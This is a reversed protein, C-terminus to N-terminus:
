IIYKKNNIINHIQNPICIYTYCYTNHVYIYIDNKLMYVVIQGGKPNQRVCVCVTHTIGPTKFLM